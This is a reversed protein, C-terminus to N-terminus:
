PAHHSGNGDDDHRRREQESRQWDDFSPAALLRATCGDCYFGEPQTLWAAQMQEADMPM